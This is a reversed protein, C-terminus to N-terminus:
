IYIVFLGQVWWRQAVSVAFFPHQLRELFLQYQYARIRVSIPSNLLQDTLCHCHQVSIGSSRSGYSATEPHGRPSPLAEPRQSRCSGTGLAPRRGPIRSRWDRPGAACFGRNLVGPDNSGIELKSAFMMALTPLTGVQAMVDTPFDHVPSVIHVRKRCAVRQRRGSALDVRRSAAAAATLAWGLHQQLDSGPQRRGAGANQASSVSWVSSRFFM